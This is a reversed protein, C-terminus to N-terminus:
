PLVFVYSYKRAVVVEEASWGQVAVQLEVVPLDGAELLVVVGLLALVVVM